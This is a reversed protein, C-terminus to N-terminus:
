GVHGELVAPVHIHMLLYTLGGDLMLKVSVTAYTNSSVHAMHNISRVHKRYSLGKRKGVVLRWRRM